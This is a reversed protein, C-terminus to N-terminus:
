VTTQRFDTTQHSINFVANHYASFSCMPQCNMSPVYLLRTKQGIVARYKVRRMLGRIKALRCHLSCHNVGGVTKGSNQMVRTGTSLKVSKAEVL